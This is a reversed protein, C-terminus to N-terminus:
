VADKLRFREGTYTKVPNGRELSNHQSWLEQKKEENKEKDINELMRALRAFALRKNAHQTREERAVVTLGSPIHTARVATEVKNVNQGGPGSSRMTEISVDKKSFLNKKGTEDIDGFLVVDFFWNKRKHHVRFPSQCIWLISGEFGKLFEKQQSNMDGHKGKVSLLVSRYTNKYDGQDSALISLSIDNEGCGRTLIKELFLKVALSCEVPGRGASLQIWM